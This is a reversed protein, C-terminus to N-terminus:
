IDTPVNFAMATLTVTRNEDTPLSFVCRFRTESEAIISERNNPHKALAVRLRELMQSFQKTRNFVVIAAKTDRWSLYSLIQDIAELFAKEGRWFKCEAIFINRGDTRILIDTKGQFNFTEGTANGQYQGNLQILYHERIAEESLEVFSAPSREMVLAMNEIISLINQYRSEDLTQNSSKSPLSLTKTSKNAALSSTLSGSRPTRQDEATAVSKIKIIFREWDGEVQPNENCGECVYKNAIASMMIRTAKGCVTCRSQTLFNFRPDNRDVYGFRWRIRIKRRSSGSVEEWFVSDIRELEGEATFRFSEMRDSDSAVKSYSKAIINLQAISGAVHHIADKAKLDDITLDNHAIVNRFERLQDIQKLAAPSPLLNQIRKPLTDSQLRLIQWHFRISDSFGFDKETPYERVVAAANTTLKLAIAYILYAHERVRSELIRLAQLTPTTEPGKEIAGLASKLLDRERPRLASPLQPEDFAFIKTDQWEAGEPFIHFFNRYALNRLDEGRIICREFQDRRIASMFRRTSEITAHLNELFRGGIDRQLILVFIIGSDAEAQEALSSFDFSDISEHTAANVITIRLRDGYEVIKHFRSNVRLEVFDKGESTIEIRDATLRAAVARIYPAPDDGFRFENLTRLFENEASLIRFYRVLKETFFILEAVHRNDSAEIAADMTDTLLKPELHARAFITDLRGRLALLSAIDKVRDTGISGESRQPQDRYIDELIAKVHRLSDRHSSAHIVGLWGLMASSLMTLTASCFNIHQEAPLGPVALLMREVSDLQDSLAQESIAIDPIFAKASSVSLEDLFQHLFERRLKYFGCFRLLKIVRNTIDRLSATDSHVNDRKGELFFKIEARLVGANRADIFASKDDEAEIDRAFMGEYNSLWFSAHPHPSQLIAGTVIDHIDHHTLKLSSGEPHMADITAIIEDFLKTANSLDIESEILSSFLTLPDFPEVTGESREIECRLFSPRILADFLESLREPPM